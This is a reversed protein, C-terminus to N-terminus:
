GVRPPGDPRLRRDLWPFWQFSRRRWRDDFVTQAFVIPDDALKIDLRVRPHELYRRLRERLEKPRRETTPRLTVVGGATRAELLTGDDAFFDYEGNDVDIAEVSRAAAELSARVDVDQGEFIFVARIM